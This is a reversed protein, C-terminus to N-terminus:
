PLLEQLETRTKKAFVKGCAAIVGLMVVTAGLPVMLGARLSHAASSVAGTALPMASAGVGAVAFVTSNDKHRLVAAVVLPYVPGMALGLVAAAIMTVVGAPWAVLLALAGCMAGISVGLVSREPLKSGWSTSHVVRSVLAGVWMFTAAGITIGLSDGARQAYSTLWGGVAADVGTGGFILLMLPWPIELLGGWREKKRQVAAGATEAAPADKEVLAAWLAVVAFFIAVQVLVGQAHLVGEAQTTANGHKSRLAVWPGLAAGVAWVLNMRTLEVRRTEAFRRAVLLSMSTMTLSLGVGYLAIAPYATWRGAFALCLAGAITLVSGRAVSLPMRGRACYSGVAGVAYFCFLLLGGRADSMAWRRLLLPLVAGPLTLAIGTAAFGVYVPLRQRIATGSGMMGVSEGLFRARLLTAHEGGAAGEGRVGSPDVCFSLGSM